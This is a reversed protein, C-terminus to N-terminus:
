LFRTPAVVSIVAPQTLYTQAVRQIDAATVAEIQAPINQIEALTRGLVYHSGIYNAQQQATLKGLSFDKQPHYWVQDEAFQRAPRGM